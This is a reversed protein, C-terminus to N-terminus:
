QPRIIEPAYYYNIYVKAFILSTDTTIYAMTCAWSFGCHTIVFGCHAIPSLVSKLCSYKIGPFYWLTNDIIICETAKCLFAKFYIFLSLHNIDILLDCPVAESPDEMTLQFQMWHDLFFVRQSFSHALFIRRPGKM